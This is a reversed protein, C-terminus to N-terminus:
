VVECVPKRGHLTYITVNGHDNIVAFYDPRNSGSERKWERRARDCAEGDSYTLISRDRVGEEYSWHDFWFGYCAGDGETTGFYCFARRSAITELAERLADLLDDALALAENEESTNISEADLVDYTAAFEKALKAAVRPAYYKLDDTFTNILDETRMTGSSTSGLIPLRASPRNRRAISM